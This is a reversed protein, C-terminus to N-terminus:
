VCVCGVCCLDVDSAVGCRRGVSRRSLLPSRVALFLPSVVIDFSAVAARVAEARSCHQSLDTGARPRAPPLHADRVTLDPITDAVESM